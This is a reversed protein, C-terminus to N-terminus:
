AISWVRYRQLITEVGKPLDSDDDYTVSVADSFQQKKIGVRGEDFMRFHKSAVVLCAHKLDGPAEDGDFEDDFNNRNCLCALTGTVGVIIRAALAAQMPTFSELNLALALEDRTIIPKM